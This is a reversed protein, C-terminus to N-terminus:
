LLYPAPSIPLHGAGGGLRELERDRTFRRGPTDGASPREHTVSDAALTGKVDRAQVRYVYTTMNFIFVLKLKL